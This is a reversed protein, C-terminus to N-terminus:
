NLLSLSSFPFYTYCQNFICVPNYLLKGGIHNLVGGADLYWAGYDMYASSLELFDVDGNVTNTVVNLDNDEM